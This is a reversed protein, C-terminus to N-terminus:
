DYLIKVVQPICVIGLFVLEVELVVSMPFVPTHIIEAASMIKALRIDSTWINGFTVTRVYFRANCNPDNFDLLPTINETQAIIYSKNPELKM